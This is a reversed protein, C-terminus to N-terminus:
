LTPERSEIKASLLEFILLKKNRMSNGQKGVMQGRKIHSCGRITQARNFNRSVLLNWASKGVLYTKKKKKLFHYTFHEWVSQRENSFHSGCPSATESFFPQFIIVQFLCFKLFFFIWSLVSISWIQSSISFYIKRKREHTEWSKEAQSVSSQSRPRSATAGETPPTTSRSGASRPKARAWEPVSQPQGGNNEAKIKLALTM